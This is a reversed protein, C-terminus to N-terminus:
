DGDLGRLGLTSLIYRTDDKAQKLLAIDRDAALRRSICLCEALMRLHATDEISLGRVAAERWVEAESVGKEKARLVVVDIVDEPARFQVRKM